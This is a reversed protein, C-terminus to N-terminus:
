PLFKGLNFSCKYLTRFSKKNNILITGVERIQIKYKKILVEIFKERIKTIEEKEGTNKKSYVLVYDICDSGDAFTLSIVEENGPEHSM